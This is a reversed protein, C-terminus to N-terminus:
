VARPEDLSSVDSARGVSRFMFSLRAVRRPAGRCIAFWRGQEPLNPEAQPIVRRTTRTRGAQRTCQLCRIAAVAARASDRQPDHFFREQPSVVLRARGIVLRAAGHRICPANLYSEQDIVDTIVYFSGLWAGDVQAKFFGPWEV